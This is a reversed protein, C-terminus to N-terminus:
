RLCSADCCPTTYANRWDLSMYNVGRWTVSERFKRHFTPHLSIFEPWASTPSLKPVFQGTLSWRFSQDFLNNLPVFLGESQGTSTLKFSAQLQNATKLSSFLLDSLKTKRKQGSSGIHACTKFMIARDFKVGLFSLAFACVCIKVCNLLQETQKIKKKKVHQLFMFFNNQFQNAQSGWLVLVVCIKHRQQLCIRGAKSRLNVTRFDNDCKAAGVAPDILWHDNAPYLVCDPGSSPMSKQKTKNKKLHYFQCATQFASLIAHFVWALFFTSILFFFQTHFKQRTFFIPNYKHFYFNSLLNGLFWTSLLTIEVSGCVHTYLCCWLSLYILRERRPTLYCNGFQPPPPQAFIPHCTLSSGRM